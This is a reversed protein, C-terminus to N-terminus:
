SLVAFLFGDVVIRNGVSIQKDVSFLWLAVIQELIKTEMICLYFNVSSPINAVQKESQGLLTVENRSYFLFFFLIDHFM